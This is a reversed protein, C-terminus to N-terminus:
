VGQNVDSANAGISCGFYAFFRQADARSQQYLNKVYDVCAASTEARNQQLNDIARNLRVLDEALDFTLLRDPSRVREPICGTSSALVDCGFSYADLLVLPDAEDILRTPLVFLDVSEYFRRKDEGMVPGIHAAVAGNRRCFDSIEAQLAPDRVPGALVFRFDQRLRALAEVLEM